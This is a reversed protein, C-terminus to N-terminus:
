TNLNTPTFLFVASTARKCWLRFRAECDIDGLDLGDTVLFYTWDM